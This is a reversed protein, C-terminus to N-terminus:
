VAEPDFEDPWGCRKCNEPPIYTETINWPAAIHEGCVQCWLGHENVEFPHDFEDLRDLMAPTAETPM